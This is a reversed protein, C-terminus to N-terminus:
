KKLDERPKGFGQAYAIVPTIIPFLGGLFFWGIAWGVSNNRKYGHYGSAAASVTSVIGMVGYDVKELEGSGAEKLELASIESEVKALQSTATRASESNPDSSFFAITGKLRDRESKLKKLQFSDDFSLGSMSVKKIM